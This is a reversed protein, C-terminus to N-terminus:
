VRSAQSSPIREIEYKVSIRQGAFTLVEEESVWQRARQQHKVWTVRSLDVVEEIDLFYWLPNLRIITARRIFYIFAEM